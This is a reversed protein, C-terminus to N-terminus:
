GKYALLDHGPGSLQAAVSFVNRFVDWSLRLEHLLLIKILIQDASGVKFSKDQTEHAQQRTSSPSSYIGGDTDM